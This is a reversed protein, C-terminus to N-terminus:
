FRQPLIKQMKKLIENENFSGCSFLATKSDYLLHHIEHAVTFRQLEVSHVKNIVILHLGGEKYSFGRLGHLSKPLTEFTLIIGLNAAIQYVNIPLKHVDTRRCLDKARGELIAPLIEKIRRSDEPEDV